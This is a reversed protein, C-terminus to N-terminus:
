KRYRRESDGKRIALTKHTIQANHLNRNCEQNLITRFQGRNTRFKQPPRFYVRAFRSCFKHGLEQLMDRNHDEM